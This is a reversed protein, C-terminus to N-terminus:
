VVSKRDALSDATFLIQLALSVSDIRTYERGVDRLACIYSDINNDKKFHNAATKYKSIAITNMSKKGYLDGIYSYIYGITSNDLNGKQANELAKTYIIMAKDFDGGSAASLADFYCLNQPLLGSLNKLRKYRYSFAPVM